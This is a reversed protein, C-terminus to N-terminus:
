GYLKFFKEEIQKEQMKRISEWIGGIKASFNKEIGVFPNEEKVAHRNQKIFPATFKFISMFPNLSSFIYRSVRLSHTQKFFEATFCNTFTKVLPRGFKEYMKQNKESVERAKEFATTDDSGDGLAVIDSFVRKEYSFNGNDLVVLEYLGPKLRDVKRLGGIIALQEKKAVSSSVFIGLHGITPHLIYVIRRGLKKIEDANKYVKPIWNLAQSPPTINDGRSAFVLINATINKLSLPKEGENLIFEGRELKNGIFLDRVIQTIEQETTFFYGNWWREFDLFKEEDTDINARVNFMKTWNTNGPNLDEFGKVLNAGDFTGQGLDSLLSVVWEGGLLGGKYRMPNAGRIGAWYSVPAGNMILTSMCEPKKSALLAAAWGAQCNGIVVPKRQDPHRKLIEDLFSIEAAAVDGLTQGPIPEPHFVVFYVPHGMELAVGVGSELKFGGIGPGHGARPDIFVIARREKHGTIEKNPKIRYLDYNVEKKRSRGDIVLTYSFSLVPPKGKDLHKLYIDGRKRLMEMFLINKEFADGCYDLWSKMFDFYIKM